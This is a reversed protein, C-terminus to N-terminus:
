MAVAFVVINDSYHHTVTSFVGGCTILRLGAYAIKDYVVDTPFKNQPYAQIGVVKFSIVSSDARVIQFQDGATLERLRWFVGIGAVNDVHGDIIAAGIQGPTPSGTYWGAQHYDAPVALSKDANLGVPQIRTDIGIKPIKLELPVSRTYSKSPPPALTAANAEAVPRVLQIDPTTLLHAGFYLLGLLGIVVPLVQVARRNYFATGPSLRRRRESVIALERVSILYVPMVLQRKVKSRTAPQTRFYRATIVIRRRGFILVQRKARRGGRRKSPLRSNVPQRMM